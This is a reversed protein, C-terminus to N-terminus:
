FNQFLRGSRFARVWQLLCDNARWGGPLVHEAGKLLYLPEPHTLLRGSCGLRDRRRVRGAAIQELDADMRAANFGLEVLQM